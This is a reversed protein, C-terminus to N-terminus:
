TSSTTFFCTNAVTSPRSSSANSGDFDMFSRPALLRSMTSTTDHAIRSSFTLTGRLSNLLSVFM